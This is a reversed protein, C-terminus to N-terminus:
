AGPTPGAARAAAEARRKADDAARAIVGADGVVAAHSLARAWYDVYGVGKDGAREDGEPVAWGTGAEEELRRLYAWAGGGLGGLGESICLHVENRKVRLADDYYGVRAAVHGKGMAHDFGPSLFVVERV